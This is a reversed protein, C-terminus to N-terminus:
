SGRWGSWRQTRSPSGPHPPVLRVCPVSHDGHSATGDGRAHPTPITHIRAIMILPAYSRCDLLVDLLRCPPRSRCPTHPRDGSLAPAVLDLEHQLVTLPYEVRDGLPRARRVTAPGPRRSQVVVVRHRHLRHLLGDGSGWGRDVFLTLQDGRFAPGTHEWLSRQAPDHELGDGRRLPPSCVFSSSMMPAVANGRPLVRAQDPETPRRM